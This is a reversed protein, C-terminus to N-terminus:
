ETKDATAKPRSKIVVKDDKEDCKVSVTSPVVFNLAKPVVEATIDSSIIIEGDLAVPVPKDSIVRM